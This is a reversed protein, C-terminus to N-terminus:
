VSREHEGHGAREHRLHLIKGAPFTQKWHSTIRVEWLPLDPDEDLLGETRLQAKTSEPLREIDPVSIQRTKSLIFHGITEVDINLAKLRDTVERGKFFARAETEYPKEAGDVWLRFGDVPHPPDGFYEGEASKPALPFAIETTIDQSSTNLFEYEVTVRSIAITLREKEMSIRPERMLQVGGAATSGAGDNALAVTVGAILLILARM